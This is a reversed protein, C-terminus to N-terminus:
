KENDKNIKQWKQFQIRLNTNYIIKKINKPCNTHLIKNHIKHVYLLANSSKCSYASNETIMIMNTACKFLM